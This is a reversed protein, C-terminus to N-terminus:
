VWGKIQSEFFFSRPDSISLDVSDLKSSLAAINTLYICSRGLEVMSDKELQKIAENVRQRAIGTIRSIQQQSIMIKPIEGQLKPRNNAVELLLYIVRSLTNASMIIQAQLWKAKVDFSMGHFWKYIEVNNSAIRELQSNKFHVISVPDIQSIFFPKYDSVNDSEEFGGFWCGKGVVVSNVTKLNPTQLCVAVTGKLIFSIGQHAIDSGELESTTLNHKVQAISVLEEMLKPSLSTTWNITQALASDIM